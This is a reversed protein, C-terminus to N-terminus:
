RLFDFVQKVLQPTAQLIPGFCEPKFKISYLLHSALQLENWILDVNVFNRKNFKPIWQSMPCSQM